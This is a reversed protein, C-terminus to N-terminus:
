AAPVGLKAYCIWAMAIITYAVVAVSILHIKMDHNGIRRLARYRARAKVVMTSSIAPSVIKGQYTNYCFTYLCGSHEGQFQLLEGWRPAQAQRLIWIM